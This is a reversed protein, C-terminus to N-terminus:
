RFCEKEFNIIYLFVNLINGLYKLWSYYQDMYSTYNIPNNKKKVLIKDTTFYIKDRKIKREHLYIYLEIKIM